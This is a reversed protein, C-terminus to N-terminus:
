KMGMTQTRSLTNTSKQIDHLAVKKAQQKWKKRNQKSAIKENQKNM